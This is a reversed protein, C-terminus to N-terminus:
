VCVIAVCVPERHSSCLLVFCEFTNRICKKKEEKVSIKRQQKRQITEIRWQFPLVDVNERADNLRDNIVDFANKPVSYIQRLAFPLLVFISNEIQEYKEACEYEGNLDKTLQSRTSM